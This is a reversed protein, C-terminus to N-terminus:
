ICPYGCTQCSQHEYSNLHQCQKCKWSVSAPLASPGSVVSGVGSGSGSGSGGGGTGTSTGASTTLPNDGAALGMLIDLARSVEFGGRRLADQASARDFGMDELTSLEPSSFEGSLVKMGGSGSPTPDEPPPPLLIVGSSATEEGSGAATNSAGETTGATAAGAAGGNAKTTQQAAEANAARERLRSAMRAACERDAQCTAHTANEEFREAKALLKDVDVAMLARQREAETGFLALPPFPASSIALVDPEVGPLLQVVLRFWQEVDAHGPPHLTMMPLIRKMRQSESGSVLLAEAEAPALLDRAIQRLLNDAVVVTVEAGDEQRAVTLEFGVGEPDGYRMSRLVMRQGDITHEACYICAGGAAAGERGEDLGGLIKMAKSTSGAGSMAEAVSGGSNGGAPTSLVGNKTATIPGSFLPELAQEATGSVVGGMFLWNAADNVSNGNKALATRAQEDTFGLEVLQTLAEASVGFSVSKM